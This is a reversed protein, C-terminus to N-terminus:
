LSQALMQKEGTKMGTRDAGEVKARWVLNGGGRKEKDHAPTSKQPVKTPLLYLMSTTFAPPLPPALPTSDLLEVSPRRGIVGSVLRFPALPSPDEAAEDEFAVLGTETVVLPGLEDNEVDFTDKAPCAEIGAGAKELGDTAETASEEEEVNNDDLLPLLRGISLPHLASPSLGEHSSGTSGPLLLALLGGGLNESVM